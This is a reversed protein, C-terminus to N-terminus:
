AGPAPLARDGQALPSLGQRMELLWFIRPAGHRRGNGQSAFRRFPDALNQRPDWLGAAFLAQMATNEVTFFLSRGLLPAALRFADRYFRKGRMAIQGWSTWSPPFMLQCVVRPLREEPQRRLFRIMGLIQNQSIAPVVVLNGSNWVSAPLTTLDEEFSANLAAWSKRESRVPGRPRSGQFIAALSRLRQEGRSFDEGDYLSRKFHPTAGLEETISPDLSQVGFM